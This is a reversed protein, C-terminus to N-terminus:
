RKGKTILHVQIGHVWAMLGIRLRADPTMMGKVDEVILAGGPVRRYSFDATYVAKRQGSMLPVGDRIFNWRPQCVLDAIIGQKQWALLVEYRNREAKSAFQRGDSAESRVARFKSAGADTATGNGRRLLWAPLRHAM